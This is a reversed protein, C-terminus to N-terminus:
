QEHVPMGSGATMARHEAQLEKQLKLSSWRVNDGTVVAKLPVQIGASKLGDLFLHFQRSDLEYMVIMEEEFCDTVSEPFPSFGKLGLLYGIPHGQEAPSIDLSPLAARFLVAKVKKRREENGFNYLLVRAM